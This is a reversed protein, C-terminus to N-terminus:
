PMRWRCAVATTSRSELQSWKIGGQPLPQSSSDRVTTTVYVIQRLPFNDGCPFGRSWDKEPRAFQTGITRDFSRSYLSPHTLHYISSSAIFKPISTLKVHPTSGLHLSRVNGYSVLRELHSMKLAEIEPLVLEYGQHKTSLHGMLLCVEEGTVDPFRTLDIYTTDKIVYRALFLTGSPLHVTKPQQCLTDKIAAEM